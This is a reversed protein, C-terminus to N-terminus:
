EKFTPIECWAVVFDNPVIRDNVDMIWNENSRWGIVVVKPRIVFLVLVTEKPLDNPNKRLDHWEEYKVFNGRECPPYDGDAVKHWENAKDYGFEAGKQYAQEIARKISPSAGWFWDAYEKAEKEFM